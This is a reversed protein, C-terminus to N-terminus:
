HRQDELLAVPVEGTEIIRALAVPDNIADIAHTVRKESRKIPGLGAHALMAVATERMERVNGNEVAAEMALGLVEAARDAGALLADAAGLKREVLKQRLAAHYKQLEGQGWSSRLVARCSEVTFGLKKAIGPLEAEVAAGAAFVDAILQYHEAKPTM